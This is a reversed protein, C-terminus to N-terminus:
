RSFARYTPLHIALLYIAASQLAVVGGFPIIASGSAGMTLVTVFGLVSGGGFHAALTVGLLVVEFVVLLSRVIQSPLSVTIVGLILVAAIVAIGRGYGVALSATTSMTVGSAVRGLSMTGRILNVATIISLASQTLIALQALRLAPNAQFPQHPSVVAGAPQPDLLRTASHLIRAAPAAQSQTAAPRPFRTSARAMPASPEASAAEPVTSRDVSRTKAIPTASTPATSASAPTSMSPAAPWRGRLGGPDIGPREEPMLEARAAADPIRRGRDDPGIMSSSFSGGPRSRTLCNAPSDLRHRRRRHKWRAGVFIDDMWNRRRM